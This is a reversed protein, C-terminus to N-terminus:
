IKTLTAGVSFSPLSFDCLVLDWKCEALARDMEESTEVRRHITEFGGRRLERLLLQAEDEIDEVALVRLLRSM